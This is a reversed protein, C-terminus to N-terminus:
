QTQWEDIVIRLSVLGALETQRTLDLRKPREINNESAWAAYRLNWGDVLFYSDDSHAPTIAVEHSATIFGQLWDRLGAVPLPWGLADSMLQNVDKAFQPLKDAQSLQAGQANVLVTVLTQGTPSVLTILTQQPTQSWTFNIHIAQPKNNQEYQASLRGSLDIQQHYHRLAVSQSTNPSSLNSCASLFILLASILFNFM